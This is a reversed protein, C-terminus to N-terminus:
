FEESVLSLILLWFYSSNNKNSTYIISTHSLIYNSCPLLNSNFIIYLRISPLKLNFTTKLSKGVLIPTTVSLIPLCSTGPEFGPWAQRSLRKSINETTKESVRTFVPKSGKSLGGVFLVGGRHGPRVLPYNVKSGGCGLGVRRFFSASYVSNHTGPVQFKSLM